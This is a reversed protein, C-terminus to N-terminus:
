QTTTRTQAEENEANTRVKREHTSKHKKKRAKEPGLHSMLVSEERGKGKGERKKEKETEGRQEV